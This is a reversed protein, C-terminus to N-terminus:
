RVAPRGRNIHDAHMRLGHFAPLKPCALAMFGVCVICSVALALDPSSCGGMMCMCICSRCLRTSYPRVMKRQMEQARKEFLASDGLFPDHTEDM